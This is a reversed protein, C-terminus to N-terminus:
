LPASQPIPIDSYSFEGTLAGLSIPRLPARGTFSGAAERGGVHAAVLEAVVEGCMRGQCPGMGCRTWAKVQNMERAGAAVAAEIDARTVDECRCVVTEAPIGAVHGPRLAMM